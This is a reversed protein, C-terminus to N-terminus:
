LEQDKLSSHCFQCPGNSILGLNLVGILLWENSSLYIFHTVLILSACCLLAKNRCRTCESIAISGLILPLSKLLTHGWKQKGILGLTKICTQTIWVNRISSKLVPASAQFIQHMMLVRHFLCAELQAIVKRFWKM